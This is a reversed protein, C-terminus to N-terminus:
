DNLEKLETDNGYNKGCCDKEGKSHRLMMPIMVVMMIPCVFPTIGAITTRVATNTIGLLPVVSVILLPLGCCLVMMLMHKLPNNKKGHGVKKNNGHCNM